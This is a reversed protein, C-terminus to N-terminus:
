SALIAQSLGEVPYKAALTKAIISLVTCMMWIIVINGFGVGAFKDM